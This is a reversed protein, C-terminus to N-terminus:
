ELFINRSLYSYNKNAFSVYYLTDIVKREDINLSISHRVKYNKSSLSSKVKSLKLIELIKNENELKEIKSQLNRRKNAKLLISDSEIKKLYIKENESNASSILCKKTNIAIEILGRISDNQFLIKDILNNVEELKHVESNALLDFELEEIKLVRIDNVYLKKHYKKSLNEYENKIDLQMEPKSCSTLIAILTLYIVLTENKWMFNKKSLFCLM